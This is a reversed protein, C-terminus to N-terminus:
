ANIDVVVTTMTAMLFEDRDLRGFPLGTVEADVVTALKRVAAEIASPAIIAGLRLRWDALFEAAVAAAEAQLTVTANAARVTLTAAHVVAVPPLVTVQDGFRIDLQEATNFHAAIQSRLTPPAAGTATLPFLEIYCPQPRVAAVDIIASSVALTEEQYWTRGGGSSIRYPANALRLRYADDAEIDAGSTSVTTNAATLGEVPDMVETIQGIAFGNGIAGEAEAEADVAVTLAAPALVAPTLTRFVVEGARVRTGAPVTRPSASPAAAAFQLTCRARAAPLRPTFRNPGLQDLGIGDSFAVLHQEATLQAETGLVSLAYALTEILLMEVQMPYLKRGSAEEFWTVLRDTWGSAETTFLAPLPIQALADLSYPGEEDRRL